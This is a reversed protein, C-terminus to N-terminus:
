NAAVPEDATLELKSWDFNTGYTWDYNKVRKNVLLIDMRNLMPAVPLEDTFVKEFTHYFEVNKKDDLAEPSAINELSSKLEESTYRAMNFASGAGWLGAPNPDTGFGFAAMYVDFAPDDDQLRDYFNNFDLLRGDILSVNLGIAAWQQIYYQSLPEAIDGGSMMGLHIELPEGNPDERVGDGDVDKYGAEDLLNKAKEQDFAFPEVKPDHLDTMTPALPGAAPFRLGNYFKESIAKNDIAHVMAKKLNINYMKSDTDTKVTNNAADWTGVHFGMYSLYLAPRSLIDVNNLETLQTFTSASPNKIIDFNGAQIAAVQQSTPVFTLEVKKVKPEGKYYHPNAEFTVKEGQLIDTIVYPGYSPPTKRIPDSELVKDMPIGEMEDAKVFESAFCGGYYVGPNIDTLHIVLESDSKVELGSITDAEGRNYELIGEIIHMDENFRPSQAAEIFEQNAVIEYTKVIDKTTVPTGDNWKFKPNITFSVTKADQDVHIKLPTDNSDLIMKFNDDTVFAGAMTDSMIDNDTGNTYLFPNFIGKFASDSVVAVKLTADNVANGKNEIKAPYKEQIEAVSELQKDAAAGCSALTFATTVALATGVLTRKKM